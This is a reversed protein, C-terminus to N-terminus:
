FLTCYSSCLCITCIDGAYTIMKAKHDKGISAFILFIKFDCILTMLEERIWSDLRYCVLTRWVLTFMTKFVSGLNEKSYSLFPFLSHPQILFLSALLFFVSWLIRSKKQITSFLSLLNLLNEEQIKQRFLDINNHIVYAFLLQWYLVTTHEERYLTNWHSLPITGKFHM